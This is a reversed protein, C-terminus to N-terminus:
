ISTTELYIFYKQASCKVVFFDILMESWIHAVNYMTTCKYKFYIYNLNFDNVFDSKVGM